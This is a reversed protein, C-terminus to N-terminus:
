HRQSGGRRAVGQIGEDHDHHTEQTRGHRHQVVGTVTTEEEATVLVSRHVRRRRRRAHISLSCAFSM